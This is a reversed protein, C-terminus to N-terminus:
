AIVAALKGASRHIRALTWGCCAFLSAATLLGSVANIGGVGGGAIGVITGAIGAVILAAALWHFGAWFLRGFAVFHLGVVTAFWASLYERHGTAGLVAVGVILAIAEIAVVLRFSASSAM